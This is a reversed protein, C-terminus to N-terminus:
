DPKDHIYSNLSTLKPNSLEDVSGITHRSIGDGKSSPVKAPDELKIGQREYAPREFHDVGGKMRLKALLTKGDQRLNSGYRGFSGGGGYPQGSGYGGQGDNQGMGASGASAMVEEMVEEHPIAVPREITQPAQVRETKIEASAYVQEEERVQESSQVAAVEELEKVHIYEIPKHEPEIEVKQAPYVRIPEEYGNTPILGFPGGADKYAELSDQASAVKAEVSLEQAQNIVAEVKKEDYFSRFGTVIATVTINEQLSEDILTGFIVEANNGAAEQAYSTIIDIEEIGLEYDGESYGINLLIYKAGTIDNRQLLPSHLASKIVKEARDEGSATGYGMIAVGGKTLSKKVDKFDVNIYGPKTIIEATSKAAVTLVDDVFAFAKGIKLGSHLKMLNENDIVVLTDVYQELKEIGEQARSKKAGGEFKFPTTIIGVTLIDLERAIRAVVPAAGTGTGGGMGATIFLMKTNSKLLNKIEEASEEAAMRGEEPDAGAGNGQTLREGIQLKNPIPSNELAQADTNCIIFDVGVIGQNYMHNVANGGGGGVGFVKIISPREPKPIEFHLNM